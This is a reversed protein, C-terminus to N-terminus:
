LNVRHYQTAHCQPCPPIHGPKHFHLKEGCQDCALTGIGIVEGTHYEANAALLKLQLLETTTKDAAQSFKEWFTQEILQLDFGLWSKLEKGTQELYNSADALDRKIYEELLVVEDASLDYFASADQKIEDVLHQLVEEGQHTKQSLKGLLHEYAQTLASKDSSKTSNSM